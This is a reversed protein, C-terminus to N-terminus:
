LSNSADSAIQQITELRKRFVRAKWAAFLAIPIFVLLNVAGVEFGNTAIGMVGIAPLLVAFGVLGIRGRRLQAPTLSRETERQDWWCWVLLCLFGCGYAALAPNLVDSDEAPLGFALCAAFTLWGVVGLFTKLRNM